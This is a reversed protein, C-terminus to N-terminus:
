KKVLYLKKHKVNQIHISHQLQTDIIEHQIYTAINSKQLTQSKCFLEQKDQLRQTHDKMDQYM